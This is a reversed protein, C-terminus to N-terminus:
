ESKEELPAQVIWKYIRREDVNIMGGVEFQLILRCATASAMLRLVLSVADSVEVFLVSSFLLTGFVLHCVAILAGVYQLTVALPGLKVDYLDFVRWSSNACPTLENKLAVGLGHGRTDIFNGSDVSTPSPLDEVRKRRIATKLSLVATIHIIVSLLVWLLPWYSSRCDWSIISHIGLKYTAHLINALASLAVIYQLLSVLVVGKIKFASVIFAGTAAENAKLPDDWLLFRGPFVAPAGLSLLFSLFPRHISLLAM